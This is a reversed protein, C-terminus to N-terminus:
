KSKKDSKEQSALFAVADYYNKYDNYLQALPVSHILRTSCLESEQPSDAGPVRESCRDTILNCHAGSKFNNLNRVRKFNKYSFIILFMMKILCPERMSLSNGKNVSWCTKM